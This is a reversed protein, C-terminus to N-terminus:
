REANEAGTRRRRRGARWLTEVLGVLPDIVIWVLFTTALTGLAMLFLFKGAEPIGLAGLVAALGGLLPASVYFGLYYSTSTLPHEAEAQRTGGAGRVFAFAYLAVLLLIVVGSLGSLPSVLWWHLGVQHLTMALIYGVCAIFWLTAVLHVRRLIIRATM